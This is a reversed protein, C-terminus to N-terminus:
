NTLKKMIEEQQLMRKGDHVIYLLAREKSAFKAFFHATFINFTNKKARNGNQILLNHPGPVEFKLM